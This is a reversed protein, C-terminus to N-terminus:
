DADPLDKQALFRAVFAGATALGSLTAFLRPPIALYGELLPLAVEIGSLLAALAMLRVSWAKWFIRKWDSVVEIRFARVRIIAARVYAVPNM